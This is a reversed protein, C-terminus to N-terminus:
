LGSQVRKLVRECEDLEVHLQKHHKKSEGFFEPDLCQYGLMEKVPLDYHNKKPDTPICESMTDSYVGCFDGKPETGRCGSIFIALFVLTRM